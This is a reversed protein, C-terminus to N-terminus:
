KLVYGAEDLAKFLVDHSVERDANITASDSDLDVNAERVGPIALLAESVHRVCSGCTMGDIHLTQTM